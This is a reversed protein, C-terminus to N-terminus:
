SYTYLVVSGPFLTAPVLVAEALKVDVPLERTGLFYGVPLSHGSDLGKANLSYCLPALIAPYNM